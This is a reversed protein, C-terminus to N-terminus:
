KKLDAIAQNAQQLAVFYFGVLLSTLATMAAVCGREDFDFGGCWSLFCSLGVGLLFAFASKITHSSRM